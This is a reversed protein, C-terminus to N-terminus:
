GVQFAPSTWTGVSAGTPSLATVTVNWVGRRAQAVNARLVRPTASVNVKRAVTGGGVRSLAVSYRAVAPNSSTGQSGIAVLVLRNTRTAIRVGCAFSASPMSAQPTLLNVVTRGGINVAPCNTTAAPVTIPTVAAGTITVTVTATASVSGDQATITHTATAQAATPTGSIVGTATNLTLGAPLAPSISFVKVGGFGTDTFARTPTIASGVVGSLTQASPAISPATAGIALITMTVRATASTSGDTATVTYATTAVATTPWGSIVGTTPNMTLGGPLAPTITFTRSAALGNVTFTTTAAIATGVRGVVIQTSPTLASTGAITITVTATSFVSGDFATILHVRQAQGATPTGSIVGTLTNLSLGAPLAPTISFTKTGTFETDTFAATATIATGVTGTVTQTAPSISAAASVQAVGLPAVVVGALAVAGAAFLRKVMSLRSSM